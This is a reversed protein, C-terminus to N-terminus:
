DKWDLALKQTLTLVVPAKQFSINGVTLIWRVTTMFKLSFPEAAEEEEEKKKKQDERVKKRLNKFNKMMKTRYNWTGRPVLVYGRIKAQQNPKEEEIHEVNQFFFSSNFCAFSCWAVGHNKKWM